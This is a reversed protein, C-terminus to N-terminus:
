QQLIINPAVRTARVAPALAAGVATSFLLILVVAYIAPDTPRVEFLYAALVRQLGISAAVGVILGAVILKVSYSLMLWLVDRGTAGLAFRIGVEHMREAVTQSMTGYLGVAALLLAMAAFSSILAAHVRQQEIGLGVIEELSRPAGVVLSPDSKLIEERVTHSLAVPNGLTRIVWFWSREHNHDAMNRDSVQAIPTYVSPESKGGLNREGRTDAAVGVVQRPQDAIDPGMSRGIVLNLGIPNVNGLYRRVFTENVIAVQASAATDRETFNRGSRMPIRLVDLFEPTIQRPEEQSVQGSTNRQVPDSLLTVDYFGSFDTPLRNVVAVSEVGPIAHLRDRARQISAVAGATTQFKMSSEVTLIGQPAFGLDYNQLREFSVVLLGAALLIVTSLCIQVSVLGAQFRRTGRSVAARGYDRLMQIPSVRALHLAPALGFAVGTLLSTALALLVVRSDLSIEHGRILQSALWEKLTHLLGVALGLGAVGGVSALLLSETLLQRILRPRSTGLAIRVAMERRRGVARALLLNAVNVCAILLICAAALALLLMPTRYDGVIRELYTTVAAGLVNRNVAGPQEKRLRDWLLDLDHRADELTVRPRLRGVVLHAIVSETWDDARQYPIWVDADAGGTFGPRMVGIVTYNEDNIRVVHGLINPDERFATKWLPHSIIAVPAAGPADDQRTFDRGQVPHVGFVRFFDSSVKVSQVVQSSDGAVVNVRPGAGWAALYEMTHNSREAFRFWPYSSLPSTGVTLHRYIQVIRQPEPYPLPRLLVANIVAFLATNAGIGIALALIAVLAFSKHNSYIRFAYRLDRWFIVFPLFKRDSNGPLLAQQSGNNRNGKKGPWKLGLGSSIEKAIKEQEGVWDIAADPDLRMTVRPKSLFTSLWIGASGLYASLPAYDVVERLVPGQHFFNAIYALVQAIASTGFGLMIGLHYRTLKSILRVALAFLLVEVVHVGATFTRFAANIAPLTGIGDPRHFGWLVSAGAIPLILAWVSFRRLGQRMDWVMGFVEQMALLALVGYIIEASWYVWYLVHRNHLLFIQVVNAVVAFCTYGFFAPFKTVFVMRRLFVLVLVFQLVPVAWVFM